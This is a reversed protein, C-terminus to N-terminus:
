KVGQVAYSHEKIDITVIDKLGNNEIVKEVYAKDLREELPPGWDSETKAM